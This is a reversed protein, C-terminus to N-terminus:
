AALRRCVHAVGPQPGGAGGPEGVAPPMKNAALPLLIPSIHTIAAPTATLPKAMALACLVYRKQWNM